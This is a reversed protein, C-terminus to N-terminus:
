AEPQQPPVQTAQEIAPQERGTELAAIRAAVEDEIRQRRLGQEALDNEAALLNAKAITETARYNTVGAQDLTAFPCNRCATGGAVRALNRRAAAKSGLNRKDSSLSDGAGDCQLRAWYGDNSKYEVQKTACDNFAREGKSM